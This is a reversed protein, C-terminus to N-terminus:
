ISEAYDFILKIGLYGLLLLGLTHGESVAWGSAFGILGCIIENGLIKM